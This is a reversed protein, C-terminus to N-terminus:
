NELACNEGFTVTYSAANQGTPNCFPKIQTSQAVNDQVLVAPFQSTLSGLGYSWPTPMANWASFFSSAMSETKGLILQMKCIGRRNTWMPQQSRVCLTHRMVLDCRLPLNSDTLDTVERCLPTHDGMNVPAPCPHSKHRYSLNGHPKWTKKGVNCKEM